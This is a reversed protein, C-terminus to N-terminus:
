GERLLDDVGDGGVEGWFFKCGTATDALVPAVGECRVEPSNNANDVLSHIVPEPGLFTSIGKRPVIMM